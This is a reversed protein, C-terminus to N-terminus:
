RPYPSLQSGDALMESLQPISHRPGLHPFLPLEFDTRGAMPFTCTALGWGQAPRQALGVRCDVALQLLGLSLSAPGLLFKLGQHRYNLTRLIEELREWKPSLQPSTPSLQATAM